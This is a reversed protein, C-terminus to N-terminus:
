KGYEERFPFVVNKRPPPLNQSNLLTQIFRSSCFFIQNSKIQDANICQLIQGLHEFNFRAALYQEAKLLRDIPGLTAISRNYFGAM